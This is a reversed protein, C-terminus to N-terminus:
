EQVLLDKLIKELESQLSSRSIIYKKRAEGDGVLLMATLMRRQDLHLAPTGVIEQVKRQVAGTQEETLSLLQEDGGSYVGSSSKEATMPAYHLKHNAITYVNNSFDVYKITGMDSNEKLIPMAAHASTSLSKEQQQSFATLGGILLATLLLLPKPKPNM